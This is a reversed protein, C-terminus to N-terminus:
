MCANNQRRHGNKHNLLIINVVFVIGDDALLICQKVLVQEFM